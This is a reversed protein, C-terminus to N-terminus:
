VSHGIYIICSCAIFSKFFSSLLKHKYFLIFLLWHLSSLSLAFPKHVHDRWCHKRSSYQIHSIANTLAFLFPNCSNIYSSVKSLCKIQSPLIPFIHRLCRTFFERCTKLLIHSDLTLLIVWPQTVPLNNDVSLLYCFPKSSSSSSRYFFKPNSLSQPRLSSLFLKSTICLLLTCCWINTYRPELQKTELEAVPRRQARRYPM